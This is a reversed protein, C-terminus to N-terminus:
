DLALSVILVIYVIVALTWAKPDERERNGKDLVGVVTPIFAVFLISQVLLNDVKDNTFFWLVVVIPVPLFALKELLKLPSFERKRSVYIMMAFICSTTTVSLLGKPINQNVVDFYSLTNLGMGVLWIGLTAPNPISSGRKIQKYYTWYIFPSMAASLIAFYTSWFDRLLCTIADQIM